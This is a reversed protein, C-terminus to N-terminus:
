HWSLAAYDWTMALEILASDLRPCDAIFHFPSLKPTNRNCTRIQLFSNVVFVCLLFCFDCDSKYKVYSGARGNIAQVASVIAQAIDDLISM